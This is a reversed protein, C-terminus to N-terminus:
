SHNVLNYVEKATFYQLLPVIVAGYSVAAIYVCAWNASNKGIVAIKDGEVIGSRRFVDHLKLITNGTKAYSIEGNDYDRLATKNWNERISNDFYSVLKEQIM